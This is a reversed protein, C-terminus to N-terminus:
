EWEEGESEIIKWFIIFLLAKWCFQFVSLSVSKTTTATKKKVNGKHRYQIHTHTHMHKLKYSINHWILIPSYIIASCVCMFQISLFSIFNGLWLAPHDDLSSVMSKSGKRKEFTIFRLPRTMKRSERRTWRRCLRFRACFSERHVIICDPWGKKRREM